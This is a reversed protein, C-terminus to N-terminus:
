SAPGNMSEQAPRLCGPIAGPARKPLAGAEWFAITGDEGGYCVGLNWGLRNVGKSEFDAINKARAMEIVGVWTDLEKGRLAYRQSYALAHATDWHVVPGHVTHAVEHQVAPGGKVLIAEIRHSMTEWKGNFWYQYRDAPNLREAFTDTTDAHGSTLLWGHQVGRGMMPPGWGAFSFGASDFGGGQVHAEPGDATAEMMLVRGSASKQPGIVLCRSAEVQAEVAPAPMADLGALDTAGLKPSLHTSAPMPQAPALDEGPPITLPTDPDSIPVVDDFIARGQQEGYREIMANLFAANQLEYGGRGGPISALYGLYDLLTWPAPRIGWQIFEIPTKHKPDAEIEAVGRNIGDVFAQLMVQHERPIAHYMRMLEASDLKRNRATKDSAIASAGLIEARRGQAARRNLELDALRDQSEAYGVGYMVAASTEGLLHPVGMADRYVTVKHASPQVSRALGVGAAALGVSSGVFTVITLVKM